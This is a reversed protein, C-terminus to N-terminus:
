FLLFMTKGANELRLKKQVTELLGELLDSRGDLEAEDAEGGKNDLKNNHEPGEAAVEEEHQGGVHVGDGHGDALEAEGAQPRGAVKGGPDKEEEWTLDGNQIREYV